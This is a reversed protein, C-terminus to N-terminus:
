LFVAMDHHFLSSALVVDNPEDRVLRLVMEWASMIKGKRALEM